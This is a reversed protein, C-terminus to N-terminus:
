SNLLRCLLLRVPNEGPGGDVGSLPKWNIGNRVAEPLLRSRVDWACGWVRM